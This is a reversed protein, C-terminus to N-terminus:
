AKLKFEKFKKIRWLYFFEQRFVKVHNQQEMSEAKSSQRGNWWGCAHLNKTWCSLTLGIFSILKPSSKLLLKFFNGMRCDKLLLSIQLCNCHFTCNLWLKRRKSKRTNPNRAQDRFHYKKKTNRGSQQKSVNKSTFQLLFLSM